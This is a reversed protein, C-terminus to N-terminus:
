KQSSYPKTKTHILTCVYKHTCIQTYRQNLTHKHRCTHIYKYKHKYTSTYIYTRTYTIHLHIWKLLKATVSVTHLYIFIITYTHGYMSINCISHTRTHFHITFTHIDRISYTLTHHQITYTHRCM